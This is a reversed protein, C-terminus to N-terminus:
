RGVERVSTLTRPTKHYAGAHQALDALAKRIGAGTAQGDLLLTAREPPYGAKLPETLLAHMDRADNLVTESLPKVKPYNAIGIVLAHGHELKGSPSPPLKAEGQKAQIYGEVQIPPIGLIGALLRTFAVEDDPSRFEVAEFRRL